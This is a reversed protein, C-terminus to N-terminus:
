MIKYDDDNDLVSVNKKKLYEEIAKLHAIDQHLPREYVFFDPFEDAITQLISANEVKQAKLAQIKAKIEPYYKSFFDVYPISDSSPQDIQDIFNLLRSRRLGIKAAEKRYEEQLLLQFDRDQQLTQNNTFTKEIISQTYQIYDATEAPLIFYDREDKKQLKVTLFGHFLFYNKIFHQMEQESGYPYPNGCGGDEEPLEWKDQWSKVLQNFNAYLSEKYGSDAKLKAYMSPDIKEIVPDWNYTALNERIHPLLTVLFDVNEEIVLSEYSIKKDTSIRAVNASQNKTFHYRSEADTHALHLVKDSNPFKARDVVYVESAYSIKKDKERRLSSGLAYDDNTTEFSLMRRIEEQKFFSLRGSYSPTVSQYGGNVWSNIRNAIKWVRMADFTKIMEKTELIDEPDDEYSGPEYDTKAVNVYAGQSYANSLERTHKARYITDIDSFHVILQDDSVKDSKYKEALGLLNDRLRGMHKVDTVTIYDFRLDLNSDTDSILEKALVKYEDPITLTEITKLDKQILLALYRATLDNETQIKPSDYLRHNLVLVVGLPSKLTHQQERMQRIYKALHGNNLEARVPAMFVHQTKEDFKSQDPVQLENRFAYYYGMSDVVNDKPVTRFGEANESM